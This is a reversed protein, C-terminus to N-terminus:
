YFYFFLNGHKSPNSKDFGALKSEEGAVKKIGSTHSYARRWVNKKIGDNQYGKKKQM